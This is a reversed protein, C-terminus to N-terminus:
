NADADEENVMPVDEWESWEFQWVVPMNDSHKQPTKSGYRAQLVASECGRMLGPLYYRIGEPQKKMLWRFEIM